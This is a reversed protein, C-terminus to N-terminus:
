QKSVCGQPRDEDSFDCPSKVLSSSREIAALFLINKILM